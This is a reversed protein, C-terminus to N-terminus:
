RGSPGTFSGDGDSLLLTAVFYVGTRAKLSCDDVMTSYEKSQLAGIGAAVNVDQLPVVCERAFRAFQVVLDGM